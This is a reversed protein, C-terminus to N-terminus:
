IGIEQQMKQWVDLASLNEMNILHSQNEGYTGALKPNTPGYLSVAPVSLAASLHSLGTDLAVVGQAGLLVAGMETLTLKPLVEVNDSVSAINNARVFELNNGWPLKVKFGANKALHVLDVWKNERWCKNNRSTGHIFVLYKETSNTKKGFREKALGYHPHGITIEYGLAAAFLQRSREVAHLRKSINFNRHYFYAALPERANAANFGCSIGRAIKAVIASKILGQVDLIYDYQEARLRQWFAQIERINTPYFPTKRWRRLAIPIVLNVAQHWGPIEVFNEEVVWDFNVNAIANKADTVAPLTSIVDGMSSLKVILVKM